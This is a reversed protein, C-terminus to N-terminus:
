LQKETKKVPELGTVRVLCFLRATCPKKTKGNTGFAKKKNENENKTHRRM